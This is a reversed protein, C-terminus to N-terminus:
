LHVSRAMTAAHLHRSGQQGCGRMTLASKVAIHIPDPGSRQGGQGPRRGTRDEEKAWAGRDQARGLRGGERERGGAM